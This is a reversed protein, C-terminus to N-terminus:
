NDWFIKSTFINIGKPVNPTNSSEEVLPYPLRIPQSTTSAQASLPVVPFGSKRNESWAELGNINALSIWKQLAIANLKNTSAAFDANNIGSNLLTTANSVATGTLRFSETVGNKYYDEASLPLTVSPWRQKAEAMLFQAESSTMIIQRKIQNYAEIQFPGIPSCVAELYATGQAGLPVGVYRSAAFTEATAQTVIGGNSADPRPSCVHKMRFTDNTAKFNDVLLKSMRIFKNSGAPANNADFGYTAYFPNIKGVVGSQYGPSATVDEGLALLGSGEAVIKNIEATIYADRGAMASQRMLIRMKLTNAFRVWQQRNGAFVIDAPDSAATAAKIEAIAADLQKILDEYITKADDYKPQLVTTGKLADSYPINGYLDILNQYVMCKMVRAFGALNPRGDTKGNNIVFEYDYLNNYYGTWFNFDTNTVVYTMQAQGGIFSTSQSWHGGWFGGLQNAGLTGITTNLANTFVLDSTTATPSNPNNNVDLWGKKCSGFAVGMMILLIGIKLKM